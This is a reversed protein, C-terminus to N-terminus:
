QVFTSVSGTNFTKSPFFIEFQEVINSSVLFGLICRVGVAMLAVVVIKSQDQARAVVLKGGVALLRTRYCPTVCVCVFVCVCAHLYVVCVHTSTNARQWHESM